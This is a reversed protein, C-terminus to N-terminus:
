GIDGAGRRISALPTIRLGSVMLPSGHIIKREEGDCAIPSILKESPWIEDHCADNRDNRNDSGDAVFDGDGAHPMPFSDGLDFTANIRVNFQIRRM